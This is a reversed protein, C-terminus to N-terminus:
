QDTPVAERGGEEVIPDEEDGRDDVAAGEIAELLLRLRLRLLLLLVVLLLVVVVVL